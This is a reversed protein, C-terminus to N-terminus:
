LTGISFKRINARCTTIPIIMKNATKNRFLKLYNTQSVTLGDPHIWNFTQMLDSKPADLLSIVVSKGLAKALALCFIENASLNVTPVIYHIIQYSNLVLRPLSIVSTQEVQFGLLDLQDALVESMEDNKKSYLLVSIM